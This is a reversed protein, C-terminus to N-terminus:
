RRPAFIAKHRPLRPPFLKLISQFTRAYGRCIGVCREDRKGTVHWPLSLSTTKLAVFQREKKRRLQELGQGM